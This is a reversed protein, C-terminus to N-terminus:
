KRGIRRWPNGGSGRASHTPMSAACPRVLTEKAVFLFFLLLGSAEPSHYVRSESRGSTRSWFIYQAYLVYDTKNLGVKRVDSFIYLLRYVDILSQLALGPLLCPFPRLLTTESLGRCTSHQTLEAGDTELWYQNRGGEGGNGERRGGSRGLM